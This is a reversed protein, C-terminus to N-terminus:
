SHLREMGYRRPWRPLSPLTPVNPVFSAASAVTNNANSPVGYTVDYSDAGLTGVRAEVVFEAETAKDQLLCGAASMQQRLSSIVYPGNVFGVGNVNQLYQPDLFVRRGALSSFDIKSVAQDVADSLLLQETALRQRSYSCGGAVACGALLAVIMALRSRATTSM